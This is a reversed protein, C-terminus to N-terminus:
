DTQTFASIASQVHRLTAETGSRSLLSVDQSLKTAAREQKTKTKDYEWSQQSFGVKGEHGTVQGKKERTHLRGSEQKWRSGNTQDIHPRCKGKDEAM